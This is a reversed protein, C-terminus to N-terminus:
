SRARGVRPGRGTKWTSAWPKVLDPVAPLGRGPGQLVTQAASRGFLGALPTEANSRGAM